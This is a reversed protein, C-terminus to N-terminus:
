RAIEIKANPLLQQYKEALIEEAYDDSHLIKICKPKHRIRKVFNILGNQDAHASYGSITHVAASINVREEDIFVYGTKNLKSNNRTGYKSYEPM